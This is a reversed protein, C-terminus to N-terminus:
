SPADDKELADAEKVDEVPFRAQFFGCGISVRMVCRGKWKVGTPFCCWSRCILRSGMLRSGLPSQPSFPPVACREGKRKGAAQQQWQAMGYGFQRHWAAGTHSCWSHRVPVNRLVGARAAQRLSCLKVEDQAKPREKGSCGSAQQRRRKEFRVNGGWVACQEGLPKGHETDDTQAAQEGSEEAAERGPVAAECIRGRGIGQPIRPDSPRKEPFRHRYGGARCVTRRSDM